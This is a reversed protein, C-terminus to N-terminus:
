AALSEVSSLSTFDHDGNLVLPGLEGHDVIQATVGGRSIRLDNEPKGFFDARNAATVISVGCRCQPHVEMLDSTLYRRGSILRCFPCADPDPVRRYGLILDDQEGVLRLTHRMANQVDFAASGMVRSRGAAVADELPVHRSLASWVEVFPRRYVIEPPVGTADPALALGGRQSAEIVPATAPRIAAGSVESADLAIPPRGVARALFANVLAASTAQAALIIPVVAALFPAVSAENHDPLRDWALAAALATLAQLRSQAAIHAQAQQETTPQAVAM